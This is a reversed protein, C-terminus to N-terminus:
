KKQEIVAYPNGERDLLVVIGTDENEYSVPVMIEGLLAQKRYEVRLKKYQSSDKLYGNAIHVYQGNNVHHNSDLHYRSVQMEPHIIKEFGSDEKPIAIKRGEFKIDLPDELEYLQLMKEPIRDPVMKDMNIYTWVSYAMAVLQGSEDQMLFKRKGIFSKFDVPATSVRIKENFKPFRIVEIQWANLLWARHMPELYDFGLGLSEGHFCTVDQFLDLIVEIKLDRNEDVQSFGVRTDISYM